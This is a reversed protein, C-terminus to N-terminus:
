VRMLERGEQETILGAAVPDVDGQIKRGIRNNSSSDKLHWDDQTGTVPPSALRARKTARPQEPSLRVADEYQAGPGEGLKPDKPSAKSRQAAEEVLGAMNSMVGLPNSIEKIALVDEPEESGGRSPPLSMYTVPPQARTDPWDHQWRRGPQIGLRDNNRSGGLGTDPEPDSQLISRHGNGVAFHDTRPPADRREEEYSFTHPPTPTPNSIPGAGGGGGGGLGASGGAAGASLLRVIDNLSQQMNGM